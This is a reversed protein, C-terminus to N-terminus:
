RRRVELLLLAEDASACDVVTVDLLSIAESILSRLIEDDEVVLVTPLMM